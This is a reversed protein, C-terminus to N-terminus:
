KQDAYFNLLAATGAEGKKKHMKKLNKMMKKPMTSMGSLADELTYKLYPTWQGALIGADDEVSSGGEAHCKKCYKNHLKGGQKALKPDVAQGKAAVFKQNVFYGAMTEIEEKSYGKAIRGMVTSNRDGTKYSEMVDVFYDHSVGAITPTAPGNSVGGPGHCGFCTNALMEASPTAAFAVSGFAAGVVVAATNLITKRVM